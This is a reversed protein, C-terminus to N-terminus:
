RSKQKRVAFRGEMWGVIERKRSLMPKEIVWWSFGAYVLGAVLTFAANLYWHRYDPFLQTYTQQIPFAFLYLGYSYDGRFLFGKKPPHMMGLYVVLYAAFIASLYATQYQLNACILGVTALLAWRIDLKVRDGFLSLCLGCVFAAILSRPLPASKAWRMEFHTAAYSTGFVILAALVVLVWGRRRLVGSLWLVALLLYCELEVPVTWLSLNVMKPFPNDLFVGPLYFHVYGFINLFYKWFEARAFYDSWPLKTMLPGIVLASLLVEVTLAPLLRIARLTVFATLTPKKKLSGAVLFGSLAFFMLLIPALVVRHWGGWIDATALDTVSTLIAHHWIVAVALILRLYDFGHTFGGVSRYRQTITQSRLGARIWHEQTM